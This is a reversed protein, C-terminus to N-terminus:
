QWVSISLVGLLPPRVSLRWDSHSREPMVLLEHWTSGEQNEEHSEGQEAVGMLRDLGTGMHRVTKAEATGERLAVESVTEGSNMGQTPGM